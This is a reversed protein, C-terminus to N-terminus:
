CRSSMATSIARSPRISPPSCADQASAPSGDATRSARARTASGSSFHSRALMTSVVWNSAESSTVFAILYASPGTVSRSILSPASTQSTSSLEGASGLSWCAALSSSVPRPRCITLLSDPRHPARRVEPPLITQHSCGKGRVSSFHAPALRRADRSAVAEALGHHGSGRVARLRLAGHLERMAPGQRPRLCGLRHDRDAGQVDARIRGVDPLVAAALRAALLVPNGLRHL